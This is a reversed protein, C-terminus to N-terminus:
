EIGKVVEQAVEPNEQALQQAQDMAQQMEFAREEPAKRLMQPIGLKDGIYDVIAGFKPTAQGEPGMQTAM